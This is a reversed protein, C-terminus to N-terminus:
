STRTGFIKSGIRVMTSGASVAIPFDDSMGMSIECFQDNGQFFKTKIINFLSRLYEFESRIMKEDATFTAMGMVGSIRVNNMKAIEASTLMEEARSLSLGFKSEEAAIHFELLVPIIRNIKEAERNIVSLLKLSDVSHIVSVYPVLQKVKNTQLHGIYHWEIDKPLRLCKSTLEQVKNEGFLRQGAEYAEMIEEISKTKSVAVLKVGAPLLSNIYKLNKTITM